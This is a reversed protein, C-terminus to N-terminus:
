ECAFLHTWQSRDVDVRDFGAERLMAEWAETTRVGEKSRRIDPTSLWLKAASDRLNRLFTMHEAAPVHEIVEICFAHDAPRDPVLEPGFPACHLSVEPRRGFLGFTYGYSDADPECGTYTEIVDAELMKRLGFGIGFGAELVIHRRGKMADIAFFYMRQHGISYDRFGRKQLMAFERSPKRVIAGISAPSRVRTVRKSTTAGSNVPKALIPKALITEHGPTRVAPRSDTALVEDLSLKPWWDIRSVASCNVVEIGRAALPAALLRLDEMQADWTTDGPRNKWKHPAHHHCAGDPGRRQDIGILAIRSAGLHAAMGMAATTTTRRVPVTDPRTSLGAEPKSRKLRLLRHPAADRAGASVGVVRGAFGGLQPRHEDWWRADAFIVYDAFPAVQYSSNIAIVRRGRLREMDLATVSPGGGVIYATEGRWGPPVSWYETAM